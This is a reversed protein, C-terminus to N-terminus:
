LFMLIRLFARGRRLSPLSLVPTYVRPSDSCSPLWPSSSGVLAQYWKLFLLHFLLTNQNPGVLFSSPSHACSLPKDVWNFGVLKKTFTMLVDESTKASWCPALSWWLLLTEEVCTRHFICVEIECHCRMSCSEPLLIHKLFLVRMHFYSFPSM